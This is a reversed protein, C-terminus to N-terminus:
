LILDLNKTFIIYKGRIFRIDRIHKKLFVNQQTKKINDKYIDFYIDFLGSTILKFWSYQSPAVCYTTLSTPTTYSFTSYKGNPSVQTSSPPPFMLYITILLHM